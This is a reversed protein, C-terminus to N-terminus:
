TEDAQAAGKTRALDEDWSAGLAIPAPFVTVGPGAGAVNAPGDSYQIVPTCPVQAPMTVTQGGGIGFVTQTPNNAAQEDLWRLKQDLSSAALLLNARQDPTKSTDMWPCEAPTAASATSDAPAATTTAAGLGVATITLLGAVLSLRGRRVAQRRAGARIVQCSGRPDGGWGRGGRYNPLKM